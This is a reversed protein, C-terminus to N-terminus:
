LPLDIAERVKVAFEEGLQHQGPMGKQKDFVKQIKKVKWKETTSRSGDESM